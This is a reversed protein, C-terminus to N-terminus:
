SFSSLVKQIEEYKVILEGSNKLAPLGRLEKPVVYSGPNDIDVITIKRLADAFQNKIAKCKSCWPATYFIIEGM